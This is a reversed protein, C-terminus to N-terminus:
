GPSVLGSLRRAVALRQADFRALQLERAAETQAALEDYHADADRFAHGLAAVQHEVPLAFPFLERALPWGSIILPRCAYVAEYAARMVSGPETTLCVVVDSEDVAARYDDADLFGVFRVNPPAGSRLADPCRDLDGTISVDCSPVQGAAAVVLDVPEDPAFRGVFLIRLRGRRAPETPTDDGPAEHVVESVGGWSRLVDAWRPAAVLSFAARRVLWRHVVQLRAAVRDGQAGFGGPHSDLVLTAGVSKGWAYTILGAIVPPNTVVIVRPRHRRVYRGTELACQLYRLPASPRRAPGPPFLCLVDAGLAHALEAPRGGVAGWAVFLVAGPRAPEGADGHDDGGPMPGIHKFSQDMRDERIGTGELQDNHDIPRVVGVRHRLRLPQRSRSNSETVDLGISQSLHARKVLADAHGPAVHDQQEVVVHKRDGGQRGPVGAVM